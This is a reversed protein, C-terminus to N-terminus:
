RVKEVEAQDLGTERIEDRDDSGAFSWVHNVLAGITWQERMTLAVALAASLTTKM